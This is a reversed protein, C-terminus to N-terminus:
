ILKANIFNVHVEKFTNAYKRGVEGPEQGLSIYFTERIFICYEVSDM